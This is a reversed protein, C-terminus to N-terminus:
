KPSFDKNLVGALREFGEKLLSKPCAVNLRIYDTGEIGFMGGHEILINGESLIRPMLDEKVRGYANVKIWVLYTGEPIRFEAEPLHEKLFRDIFAMNEDIYDLVQELWEEGDKFAALTAVISLPNAMFLGLRDEVYEKWKKKINKDHIIINSMLMGAMNFTKSASVCTIIRNEEDPILTELPIHRIDKRLLDCHIEDSIIIVNNKFCISALRKLEEEKWVRGVPNHPSCLILVKTDPERAKEELDEFDIEYYGHIDILSNTILKRDHSKVMNIFPYYVPTQIIIGEGEKTLIEILYAIAPVIGPSFFIDDAKVEWNFRQRYWGCVSDFYDTTRHSSYGFIMRDTRSHLAKLIPEACQFDMDAVWFPVTNERCDPALMQMFEWKVSNTGKRDIIKDLDYKM